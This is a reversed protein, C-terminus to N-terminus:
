IEHPPSHTDAIEPQRKSHLLTAALGAAVIMAMGALAM